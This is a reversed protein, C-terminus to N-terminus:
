KASQDAGRKCKAPFLSSLLLFASGLFIAMDSLNFIISKLKKCNFSFYDVVYGRKLRDAVNSIAGGLTFALGLKLLKKGKAPLLILFLLSIIVLMVGSITKLLEKKEDLFNLFAGENHHKRIIIRGNFIEQREGLKKKAEIHDKIFYEGIVITLVILIYIM